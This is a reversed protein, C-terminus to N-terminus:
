TFTVDLGLEKALLIGLTSKGAGNAGILAMVEGAALELNIGNLVPVNFAKRLGTLTLLSM